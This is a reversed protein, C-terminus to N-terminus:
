DDGRDPDDQPEPRWRYTFTPIRGTEDNYDRDPRVDREYTVTTLEQTPGALTPRVPVPFLWHARADPLQRRLGHAPGGIFRANVEGSM